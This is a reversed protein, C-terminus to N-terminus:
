GRRLRMPSICVFFDYAAVINAERTSNTTVWKSWLMMMVVENGFKTAEDFLENLTNKINFVVDVVVVVSSSSRGLVVDNVGDTVKELSVDLTNSVDFM